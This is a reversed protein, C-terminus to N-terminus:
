LLTLFSLIITLKTIVVFYEKELYLLIALKSATTGTRIITCVSYTCAPGGQSTEIIGAESLSESFCVVSHAQPLPSPPDAKVGIDNGYRGWSACM